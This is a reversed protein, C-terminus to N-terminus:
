SRHSRRKTGTTRHGVPKDEKVPGRQLPPFGEDDLQQSVKVKTTKWPNLKPPEASQRVPSLSTDETQPSMQKEQQRPVTLGFPITSGDNIEMETRETKSTQNTFVPYKLEKIKLNAKLHARRELKNQHSLQAAPCAGDTGTDHTRLHQRLSFLDVTETHGRVHCQDDNTWACRTQTFHSTPPTENVEESFVTSLFTESLMVSDSSLSLLDQNKTDESGVSEPHPCTEPYLSIQDAGRHSMLPPCPGSGKVMHDLSTEADVSQQSPLVNFGHDTQDGPDEGDISEPAPSMKLGQVGLDVQEEKEQSQSFPCTKTLPVSHNEAKEDVLSQSYPRISTQSLITETRLSVLSTCAESGQITEIQNTETDLHSLGMVEVQDEVRKNDLFEPCVGLVGHNEVEM